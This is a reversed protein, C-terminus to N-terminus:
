MDRSELVPSGSRPAGLQKWQWVALVPPHELQWQLQTCRGAHAHAATAPNGHPHVEVFVPLDRVDWSGIAISILMLDRM